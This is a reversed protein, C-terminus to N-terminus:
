SQLSPPARSLFPAPRAFTPAPPVACDAAVRAVSVWAPPPAALPPAGQIGSLALCEYCVEATADGDPAHGPAHAIGHGVLIAQAFLLTAAFLGAQWFRTM